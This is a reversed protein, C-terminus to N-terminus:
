AKFTAKFAKCAEHLRKEDADSIAKATRINHVVEPYSKQAFELWEHEFRRVAAVPLDDLYGNGGAWISICQLEVAM